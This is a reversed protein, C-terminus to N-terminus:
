GCIRRRRGTKVKAGARGLNRRGGRGLNWRTEGDAGAGGDDAVERHDVRADDDKNPNM